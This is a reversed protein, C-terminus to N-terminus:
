KAKVPEADSTIMSDLASLTEKKLAPNSAAKILSTRTVLHFSKPQPAFDNRVVLPESDATPKAAPVEVM